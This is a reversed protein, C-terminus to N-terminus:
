LHSLWAEACLVGGEKGQPGATPVTQAPQEGLRADAIVKTTPGLVLALSEVGSRRSIGSLCLQVCASGPVAGPYVVLYLSSKSGRMPELCCYMREFKSQFRFAM